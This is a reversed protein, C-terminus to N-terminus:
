CTRLVLFQDNHVHITWSPPPFMYELKLLVDSKKPWGKEVGFLRFDDIVVAVINQLDKSIGDLEALIPEIEEGIGTDGGSFHGDLFLLANRSRRVITPLLESGDGLHLEVNQRNACRKKAQEYLVQKIEVSIVRKFIYSLRKTTVGKYSGIEIITEAGTIDRVFKLNHLKTLSHPVFVENRLKGFVDLMYGALPELFTVPDNM